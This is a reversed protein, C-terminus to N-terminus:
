GKITVARGHILATSVQSSITALYCSPSITSPRDALYNARCFPPSTVSKPNEGSNQRNLMNATKREQTPKYPEAILENEIVLGLTRVRITHGRQVSCLQLLLLYPLLPSPHTIAVHRRPRGEKRTGAAAVDVDVSAKTFASAVANSATEDPDDSGDSLSDLPHQDSRWSQRFASHKLCLPM